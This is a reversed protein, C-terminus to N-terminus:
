EAASAVAALQRLSPRGGQARPRWAKVLPKPFPLVTKSSPFPKLTRHSPSHHAGGMPRPSRSADQSRPIVGPLQESPQRSTAARHKGGRSLNPRLCASGLCCNVRELALEVKVVPPGRAAHSPLDSVGMCATAEAKDRGGGGGKLLTAVARQWAGGRLLVPM